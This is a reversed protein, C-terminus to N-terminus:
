EHETREREDSNISIYPSSYCSISLLIVMQCKRTKTYVFSLSLSLFALILWDINTSLSILNHGVVYVCLSFQCKWYRLVRAATTADIAQKCAYVMVLRKEWKIKNEILYVLYCILMEVIIAVRLNPTICAVPFLISIKNQKYDHKWSHSCVFLFCVCVIFWLSL